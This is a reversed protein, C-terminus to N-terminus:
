ECSNLADDFLPPDTSSRSGLGALDAKGGETRPPGTSRNRSRRVGSSGRAGTRSMCADQLEAEDVTVLGNLWSLSAEATSPYYPPLAGEGHAVIDERDDYLHVLITERTVSSGHAIRFPRPLRITFREAELRM